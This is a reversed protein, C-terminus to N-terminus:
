HASLNQHKLWTGGFHTLSPNMHQQTKWRNIQDGLPRAFACAHVTVVFANDMSVTQNGGAMPLANSFEVFYSGM